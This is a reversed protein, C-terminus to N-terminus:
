REDNLEKLIVDIEKQIAKIKKESRVMEGIGVVLVVAAPYRIVPVFILLLSIFCVVFANLQKLDQKILDDVLKNRLRIKSLYEEDNM